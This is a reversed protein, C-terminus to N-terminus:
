VRRCKKLPDGQVKYKEVNEPTKCNERTSIRHQSGQHIAVNQDVTENKVAYGATAPLSPPVTSDVQDGTQGCKKITAGHIRYHEYEPQIVRTSKKKNGKAHKLVSPLKKKVHSKLTKQLHETQFFKKTFHSKSLIHRSVYFETMWKECTSCYINKVGDKTIKGM